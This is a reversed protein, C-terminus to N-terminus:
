RKQYNSPVVITGPPSNLSEEGNQPAKHKM